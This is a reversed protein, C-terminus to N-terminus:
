RYFASLLIINHDDNHDIINNHDANYDDNHDNHYLIHGPRRFDIM